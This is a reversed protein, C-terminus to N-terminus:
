ALYTQSIRNNYKAQKEYETLVTLCTIAAAGRVVSPTQFLNLGIPKIANTM